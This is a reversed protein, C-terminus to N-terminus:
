LYLGRGIDCTITTNTAVLAAMTVRCPKTVEYCPTTNTAVLGDGGNYCTITLPHVIILKEVDIYVNNNNVRKQLPQTPLLLLPWQLVHHNVPTCNDVREVVLFVKNNNCVYERNLKNM